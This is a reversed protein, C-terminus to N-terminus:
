IFEKIDEYLKQAQESTLECLPRRMLSNAVVGRRRLVEKFIAMDSGCKLIDIVKIAKRQLDRAKVLDGDKYAKYVGVFPEPCPGACGSVCGQAGSVLGALFLKDPGVLVSFNFDNIAIYNLIRVMDPYSYKIGVVNKCESAIQQALEPKIDNGSCQPISYMYIPFDKSVSASIDHYYQAIARDSAGFFSPTVAGVGDAGIKEAHKALECAEKTTMAGVHIYVVVRHAARKVVTEAVLKREEESLLYMEGTTGLPYLCNVGKEIQFDVQRELSQVDITGDEKFPTTMANIVGYM